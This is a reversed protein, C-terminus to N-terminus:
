AGTGRLGSLRGGPPPKPGPTSGVSDAARLADLLKGGARGDVTLGFEGQVREIAARTRSGIVGDAPGADYGRRALREQVERRELRSLGRDDTPWPTVFGGEGRLRDALHAVALAYSSAANYAFIARWNQYVLFAPGKPGAPRLLAAAGGGTLKKGDVRRIGAAAWATVPRRHRVGVRGRYRAPVTVEHGWPAGGRWGARQLYNAASALADPVSRVIDRRGDGDGDVARTRFTSPMFQPHGFAGAWSGVLDDPAIDGSALIELAAVLQGRFFDRRRGHCAGTALSRVLPRGGLVRGFDTELGWIAVVVHRDVGSRAEIRDLVPAWEVLRQRGDAVRQSDVTAAFYDWISLTFEPQRESAVLVSSDPTVGALSARVVSDPVGARRAAAGIGALCQDFAAPAAAPEAAVQLLLLFLAPM